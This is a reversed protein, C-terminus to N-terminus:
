NQVLKRRLVPIKKKDSYIQYYMNWINLRYSRFGCLIYVAAASHENGTGNKKKTNKDGIRQDTIKPIKREREEKRRNRRERKRRKKKQKNNEGCFKIAYNRM